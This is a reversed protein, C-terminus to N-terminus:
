VTDPKFNYYMEGKNKWARLESAIKQGKETLKIYFNVLSLVEIIGANELDNLCNIDDHQPLIKTKDAPIGDHEFFGWLRTGYEEKWNRDPLISGRFPTSLIEYDGTPNIRINDKNLEGTFPAVQHSHVRSEIYGLLSWHDKSFDKVPVFKTTKKVATKM